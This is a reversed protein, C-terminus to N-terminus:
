DLMREKTWNYGSKLLKAPSGAIISGEETFKKNVLSKAGIISNAPIISGKLILCDQAIWVHKRIVIDEAPNTRKGEKSIISHSDTNRIEVRYSFLCDDGIEVKRGEMSVFSTDHGGETRSGIQILSHSDRLGFLVKGFGCKEGIHLTNSSGRIETRCNFLLSGKEICIFNGGGVYMSLVSGYSDM